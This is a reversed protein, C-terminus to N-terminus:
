AGSAAGPDRDDEWDRMLEKLELHEVRAELAAIRRELEQINAKSGVSNRRVVKHGMEELDRIAGSINGNTVYFGLTKTAEAALEPTSKTPLELKGEGLDKCVPKLYDQIVRNRQVFTLANYKKGM